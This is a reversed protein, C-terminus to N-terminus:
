SYSGRGREKNGREKDTSNTNFCPYLQVKQVDSTLRPRLVASWLVRGVMDFQARESSVKGWEEVSRPTQVWNYTGGGGFGGLLKSYNIYSWWTM